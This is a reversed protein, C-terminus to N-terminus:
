LWGRLWYYVIAFADYLMSASAELASRSPIFMDLPRGRGAYPEPSSPIPHSGVARFARLARAIHQQSTVLVFQTVGRAKLIPPVLLAQERTTTSGAEEVIRDEDVGLFELDDAIYHAETRHESGLGGSVVVWPRDMLRYVRAAELMRLAHERSSAEYVDGRSRYTEMGAGLVVIATADRVDAGTRVPAYEPTLARILAVATIPTSLVLYVLVLTTIWVRGARGRDKQRYLLLTGPILALLFFPYSGPVFLEKMFVPVM